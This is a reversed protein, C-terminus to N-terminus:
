YLTSLVKTNKNKSSTTNPLRALEIKKRVPRVHAYLEAKRIVNRCYLKDLKDM